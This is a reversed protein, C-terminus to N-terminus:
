RGTETDTGRLTALVKKAVSHECSAAYREVSISIVAIDEQLKEELWEETTRVREQLAAVLEPVKLALVEDQVSGDDSTRAEVGFPEGAKRILGRYFELGNSMDAATREWGDREQELEKIRQEREAVLLRLSTYSRLASLVVIEEGVTLDVKVQGEIKVILRSIVEDANQPLTESM